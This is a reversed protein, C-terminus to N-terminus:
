SENAISQKEDKTAAKNLAEELPWNMAAKAPWFMIAATFILWPFAMLHAIIFIEVVVVACWILLTQNICTEPQTM